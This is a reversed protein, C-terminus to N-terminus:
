DDTEPEPAPGGTDTAEARSVRRKALGLTVLWDRRRIARNAARGWEDFWAWLEIYSPELRSWRADESEIAGGSQSEFAEASTVLAALRAREAPDLKVKALRALAAQDATDSSAELTALRVILAKVNAVAVAKEGAALGALLQDRQAPFRHGLTADVKDLLGADLRDLEAMALGATRDLAPARGPAYGNVAHFLNWGEQHDAEEYGETALAARIQANHALGRLFRSVRDPVSELTSRAPKKPVDRDVNM